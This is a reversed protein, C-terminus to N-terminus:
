VLIASLTLLLHSYLMDVDVGSPLRHHARDLLLPTPTLVNQLFLGM